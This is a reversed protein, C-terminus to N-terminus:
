LRTTLSTLCTIRIRTHTHTHTHTHKHTPPITHMHTYTCVKRNASLDFVRENYIEIYSARVLYQRKGEGSGGGAGANANKKEAITDFIHQSCRTMLGPDGGTGTLTHTKGSGTQGYCFITSNYSSPSVRARM